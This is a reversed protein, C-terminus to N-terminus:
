TSVMEQRFRDRVLNKHLGSRNCSYKKMLADEMDLVNMEYGAYSITKVVQRNSGTSTFMAM